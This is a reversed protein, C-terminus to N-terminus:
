GSLLWLCAVRWLTVLCFFGRWGSLVCSRCSAIRSFLAYPTPFRVINLLYWMGILASVKLTQATTAEESAAGPSAAMRLSSPAATIAVRRTQLPAKSGVSALVSRRCLRMCLTRIVAGPTLLYADGRWNGSGGCSHAPRTMCWGRLCDLLRRSLLTLTVSLRQLSNPSFALCLLLFSLSSRLHTTCTGPAGTAWLYRPLSTM